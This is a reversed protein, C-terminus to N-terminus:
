SGRPVAHGSRLRPTPRAVVSATTIPESETSIAFKKRVLSRLMKKGRSHVSSRSISRREPDRSRDARLFDEPIKWGTILPSVSTSHALAAAPLTDEQTMQDAQHFRNPCIEDFRSM